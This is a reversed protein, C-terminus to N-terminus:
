VTGGLMITLRPTTRTEINNWEFNEILCAHNFKQMERFFWMVRLMVREDEGHPYAGAFWKYVLREVRYSIFEASQELIAREEDSLRSLLQKAAENQQKVSAGSDIIAQADDKLSERIRNARDHL